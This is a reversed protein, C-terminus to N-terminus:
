LARRHGRGAAGGVPRAGGVVVGTEHREGLDLLAGAPDELGDPRDDVPLVAGDARRQGDQEGLPVEEDLVDGADALGLEGACQGLRDVRRDRADLERGVQQRAVDRAHGDEVPGRAPELELGAGDERVDHDAVLDVPRRRLRLRGQELAQLLALDGDVADRVGQGIREEHDRRLVRDLHLARVREGLRLAVPEHRPDREAVGVGLALQPHHLLALADAGEVDQLGEDREHVQPAHDRGDSGDVGGLGDLPVGHREDLGGPDV